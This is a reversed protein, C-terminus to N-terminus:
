CCWSPCCARCCRSRRACRSASTTSCRRTPATAPSRPTRAATSAGTACCRMSPSCARRAAPGPRHRRPVPPRAVARRRGRLPDDHDVAAAPHRAHRRRRHHRGRLRALLRAQADGSHRGLRDGLLDRPELRGDRRVARLRVRQRHRPRGARPQLWAHLAAYLDQGARSRGIAAGKLIFLPISLLTISAMEEYVNQTITDLSAAPMFLAMFLVAVSGLAFAIPAGSLMFCCRPRPSCALGIASCRCRLAEAACRACATRREGRASGAVAAGAADHRAGDPRLSDLAAAVLDVLDDPRRGLGRAAADVVEVRLPRLLRPLRSRRAVRRLRTPASRCCRAVAEIGVHGRISQVFAGCLFTAGVLLFVATEDQWDTSAKCFYRSFVSSTLVLSAALLAVMGFVVMARNALALARALPVLWRPTAPEIGGNRVAEASAPPLSAAGAQGAGGSARAKM